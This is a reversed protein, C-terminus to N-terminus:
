RYSATIWRNLRAAAGFTQERARAFAETTETAGIGRAAFLANGYAVNLRTLRQTLAAGGDPARRATAGGKDAM